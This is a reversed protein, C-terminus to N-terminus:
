NLTYHLMFHQAVPLAAIHFQQVRVAAPAALGVHPAVLGRYFQVDQQQREVQAQLQGITRALEARERIDAVQAEQDSALQVNLRHQAQQLQALQQQLAKAQAAAHLAGYGAQYHGVEFAGYLAGGSLLATVILWIWWRAPSYTRVVLKGPMQEM